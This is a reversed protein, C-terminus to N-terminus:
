VSGYLVSVPSFYEWDLSVIFRDLKSLYARELLNSCTFQAGSNPLNLLDNGDVFEYFEDMGRTRRVAQSQEEMYMVENFDGKICWPLDRKNRISQLIALFIELRSGMSPGYVGTIIWRQNEGSLTGVLSVLYTDM